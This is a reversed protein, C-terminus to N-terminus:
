LEGREIAALLAPRDVKGNPTLPLTPTLHLADPLMYTPLRAASFAKIDLLGPRARGAPVVVAHLAAELGSGVVVVAAEAVGDHAGLVAEIEGPEIRQGRVKVMHDIRGVYELEGDAGIRGLDGTRYPGDQAPAGWYGLMVTPGSVVIEGEGPPDLTVTAGSAARGIPLPRTRALDADSVEYSTCVNTETPGYWNFLRVGPWRKRLAQVHTLPFPEGAFVCARLDPPRPRDLLGGDRMMLMLASPVSYWVTIREATIFDALQAPAYSLEPAVLHVSAGAAFAGYLDFVSLDFNFPAHNSLRDAPRLGLLRVAWSVFAWANRHSIAVGKPTGTSGSTYLIYAPDGPRAPHPEPVPQGAGAVLLDDLPVLPAAPTGPTKRERGARPAATEDVAILAAACDRAITAVRGAPNTSAVPVYVAGARLAGQMLAVAATTKGGWVVVRDGPRVGFARLAAAYRDARDDLQGYSVTDPGAAVALADPDRRAADAVLRHLIM